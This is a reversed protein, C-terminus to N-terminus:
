RIPPHQLAWMRRGLEALGWQTRWEVLFVLAIAWDLAPLLPGQWPYYLAIVYTLYAASLAFGVGGILFGLRSARVKEALWGPDPLTSPDTPGEDPDPM